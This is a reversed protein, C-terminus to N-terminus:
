SDRLKMEDARAKINIEIIEKLQVAPMDYGTANKGSWNVGVQINRSTLKPIIINFFDDGNIEVIECKELSIVKVMKNIRSLSSWFPAVSRGSDDGLVVYGDSDRLTWVKNNNIFDDYFVHASAGSFGM